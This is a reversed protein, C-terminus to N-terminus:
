NDLHVLNDYYLLKDFLIYKFELFFGLNALRISRQSFGEEIDHLSRVMSQQFWGKDPM